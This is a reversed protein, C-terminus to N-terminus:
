DESDKGFPGPGMRLCAGSGEPMRWRDSPICIIAAARDRLYWMTGLSALLCTLPVFVGMGLAADLVAGEGVSSCPM